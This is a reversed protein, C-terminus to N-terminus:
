EEARGMRMVARQLRAFQVADVLVAVNGNPLRVDTDYGELRLAAGLAEDAADQPLEGGPWTRRYAGGPGVAVVPIDRAATTQM